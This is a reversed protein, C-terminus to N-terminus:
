AVPGARITTVENTTSHTRLTRSSNDKAPNAARTSTTRSRRRTRLHQRLPNARDIVVFKFVGLLYGPQGSIMAAAHRIM